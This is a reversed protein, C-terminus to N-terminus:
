YNLGAEVEVEDGVEREIKRRERSAGRVFFSHGSGKKGEELRTRAGPISFFIKALRWTVRMNMEGARGAGGSKWGERGARAEGERESM